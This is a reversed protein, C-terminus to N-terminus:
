PALTKLSPVCLEDRRIAREARAGFQDDVYVPSIDILERAHRTQYCMLHGPKGPATPDEGNKDSPACLFRPAVVDVVTSGFQDEVTVNQVPQFPPAGSATEVRYCNFHDVAPNALPGPPATLSKAAPVLLRILRKVDVRLTGFQNTVTVNQVPLYPTDADRVEYAVLHNPDTPAAPDEDNKNTPNCIRDPARLLATSTGFQDVLTVVPAAFRRPKLEFCQYHRPAAAGLCPVSLTKIVLAIDLRQPNLELIGPGAQAQGQYVPAGCVCQGSSSDGIICSVPPFTTSSPPVASFDASATLTTVPGTAAGTAVNPCTFTVPADSVDCAGATSGNSVTVTFPVATGCPVGGTFIPPISIDTDLDNVFCGPPSQAHAGGALGLAAAALLATLSRLSGPLERTSRMRPAFTMTIEEVRYADTTSLSAPLAITL